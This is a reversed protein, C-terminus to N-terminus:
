QQHPPQGDPINGFAFGSAMEAWDWELTMPMQWLEQPVFPQQFASLDVQATPESPPFTSPPPAAFRPSQGMTDAGPLIDSYEQNYPHHTYKAQGHAPKDGVPQPPFVPGQSGTPSTFTGTTHQNSAQTTFGPSYSQSATARMEAAQSSRLNGNSAVPQLGGMESVSKRKRKAQVDKEARDLVVKAIREFEACVTLMRRVSGNSEDTALMSLFNVVLNMLKVDSRARADLPNQLVNAFLTV